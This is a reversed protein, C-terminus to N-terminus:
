NAPIMRSSDGIPPLEIWSNIGIYKMWMKGTETDLVYVHDNNTVHFQYRGIQSDNVPPQNEGTAFLYSTMLCFTLCTIKHLM